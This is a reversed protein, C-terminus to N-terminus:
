TGIIYILKFSHVSKATSIFIDPIKGSIPAVAL